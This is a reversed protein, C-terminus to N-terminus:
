DSPMISMFLALSLSDLSSNLKITLIQDTRPVQGIKGSVGPEAPDIYSYKNSELYLRTVEWSSKFDFGANRIILM